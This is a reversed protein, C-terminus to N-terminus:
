RSVNQEFPKLDQSKNQEAPFVQPARNFPFAVTNDTPLNTALRTPRATFTAACCLLLFRDEPRKWSRETEKEPM